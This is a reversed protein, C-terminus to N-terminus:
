QGHMPVSMRASVGTQTCICPETASRRKKTYQETHCGLETYPHEIEYLATMKPAVVVPSRAEAMAARWAQM